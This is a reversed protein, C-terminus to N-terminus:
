KDTPWFPKVEDAIIADTDGVSYYLLYLADMVDVEENRDVDAYKLVKSADSDSWFPTIEDALIADTDGVSYYLVYLADMVDLEGNGDVDGLM